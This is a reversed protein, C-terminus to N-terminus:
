RSNNLLLSLAACVSRLAELAGLFFLAYRVGAIGIEGALVRYYGDLSGFNLIPPMEHTVAAANQGAENDAAVSATASEAQRAETAEAVVALFTTPIFCLLAVLLRM